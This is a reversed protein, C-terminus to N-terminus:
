AIKLAKAKLVIGPLGEQKSELAPNWFVLCICFIHMVLFSPFSLEKYCHSLTFFYRNKFELSHRIIKNNVWTKRPYRQIHTSVHMPSHINKHTGPYVCNNIYLCSSPMLNRLTWKSLCAPASIQISTRTITCCASKVASSNDRVGRILNLKKYTTLTLSSRFLAMYNRCASATLNWEQSDTRMQVSM